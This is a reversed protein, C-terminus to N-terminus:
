ESRSPFLFSAFLVLVVEPGMKKTEPLKSQMGRTFRLESHQRGHESLGWWVWHIM